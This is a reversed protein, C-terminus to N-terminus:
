RHIFRNAAQLLLNAYIGAALDDAMIGVGNRLSELKRLPFPKWIDFLRFLVTGSILHFATVPLFLFTLLQGAVEDIVVVSPDEKGLIRSARASLIVGAATIICVASLHLEPVIRFSIRYVLYFVFTTVLSAYTGPAGPIMGVGLGTALLLSIRDKM